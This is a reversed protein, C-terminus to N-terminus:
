SGGRVKTSRNDHRFTFPVHRIACFTIVQFTQPKLLASSILRLGRLGSLKAPSIGGQSCVARSRDRRCDLVTATVTM